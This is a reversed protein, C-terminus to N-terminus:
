KLQYAADLTLMRLWAVGVTGAAINQTAAQALLDQALAQKTQTDPERDTHGAYGALFRDSDFSIKAMGEAVRMVGERGLLNLAARTSGAGGKEAGFSAVMAQRLQGSKAPTPLNSNADMRVAHNLDAQMSRGAEAKFEVARFLQETFRKRELLSTANIWDTYGPWGKVNPPVLLNQGLQASKLVFPMADTYSFGFQRVTGVVLDVPSKILSGRNAEAWFADSLLLERLLAATNYNSARFHQAIASLAQEDPQPSVFEKWLKSAIFRAAAPQELMVDLAGDGDFAATKGLLTKSASDHFNPRFRYSFTDRDVSWGTFARAAEKIDTETYGAGEGLTFLEMVERAFNENPAEKRSNAGDLYVLMAPDRAIAHLLTRFNGLAHQRLTQQQKYMGQASIVKQQSTAFHNHWFLTMREHLPVQTEIMERMWWTKLELGERMQQQRAAQREEQSKLLGGPIPPPQSVFGPPPHIPKGAQAGAILADVAQQASQGSIAQVQAQTPAFGTRVLLHRAQPATLQTPAADASAALVCLALMLAYPFWQM